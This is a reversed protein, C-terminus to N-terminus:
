PPPATKIVMAHQSLHRSWSKRHRHTGVFARDVLSLESLNHEVEVNKGMENKDNIGIDYFDSRQLSELGVILLGPGHLFVHTGGSSGLVRVEDLGM